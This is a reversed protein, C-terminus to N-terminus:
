DAGRAPDTVVADVVVLEDTAHMGDVRMRRGPAARLVAKEIDIFKEIGDYWNLGMAGVKYDAHYRERVFREPDTNYPDVYRRAIELYMNAKESM